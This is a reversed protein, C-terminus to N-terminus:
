HRENDSTLAYVRAAPDSYVLRFRQSQSLLRALEDHGLSHLDRVFDYDTLLVHTIGIQKWLAPLSAIYPPVTKEPTGYVVAPLIPETYGRRGAYLYLLTDDCAAFRADPPTNAAIWHWAPQLRALQTQREHFYDPLVVATGYTGACLSGIALAAM